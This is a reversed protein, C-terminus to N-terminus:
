DFYYFNFRASAQTSGVGKFFLFCMGHNAKWLSYLRLLICGSISSKTLLPFYPPFTSFPNGQKQDDSSVDPLMEVVHPSEKKGSTAEKTKEKTRLINSSFLILTPQKLLLQLNRSGIKAPLRSSRTPM